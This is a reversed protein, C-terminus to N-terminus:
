LKIIFEINGNFYKNQRKIYNNLKRQTFETKHWAHWVTGSAGIVMIMDAIKEVTFTM